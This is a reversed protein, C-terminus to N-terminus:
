RYAWFIQFHGYEGAREHWIERPAGSTQFGSDTIWNSLADYAALIRPFGCDVGVTEVVAFKGGHLDVHVFIGPDSLPSDIPVAVQLPGDEADSVPGHYIGVPSGVVKCGAANVAYVLAKIRSDIFTELSEATVHGHTSLVLQEPLELASVNFHLDMGSSLFKTLERAAKQATLMRSQESMLHEQVMTVLKDHDHGAFQVAAKIQELPMDMQRLLRILYASRLQEPKYYRYSTNPDVYAPPLLGLDHYLRLAKIGIEAFRAFKGIPLNDQSNATM